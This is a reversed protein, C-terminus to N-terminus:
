APVGAFDAQHTATYSIWVSILDGEQVLHWDDRPVPRRDDRNTSTGYPGDRSAAVAFDRSSHPRRRRTRGTCGSRCPATRGRICRFSTRPLSSRPRRRRSLLPTLLGRGDGRAAASGDASARQQARQEGRDVGPVGRAARRPRCSCSGCTKARPRPRTSGSASGTPPLMLPARDQFRGVDDEATTTLIVCTWRFAAPDKDDAVTPDHWIEYPGALALMGDDRPRIFFPQKKGKVEGYWEYHGDAPILCRKSKFASRFAPKEHVDRDARQWATASRRTRRERRCWAGACWALWRVPETDGNPRALVAAINKGPSVNYDGAMATRHFLGGATSRTLRGGTTGPRRSCSGPRRGIELPWRRDVRSSGVTGTWAGIM